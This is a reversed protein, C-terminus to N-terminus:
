LKVKRKKIKNSLEALEEKSLKDLHELQYLFKETSENTKLKVVEMYYSAVIGPIVALVLAGYLGLVISAGRGITTVAVIDGFGISTIISFSYWVADGYKNIEPEAVMIILASLFFYGAFGYLIKEAHTRKLISWLMRGKRM